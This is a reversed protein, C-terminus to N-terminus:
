IEGPFWNYAPYIAIPRLLQGTRHVGEQPAIFFYARPKEAIEFVIVERIDCCYRVAVHKVAWGVREADVWWSVPLQGRSMKPDVGTKLIPTFNWYPTAHFLSDILLPNTV